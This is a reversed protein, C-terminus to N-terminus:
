KTGSTDHKTYDAPYGMLWEVWHINPGTGNSKSEWKVANQLDQAVRPTVTKAFSVNTRPTPWLSKKIRGGILLQLDPKVFPPTKVRFMSYAKQPHSQIFTAILSVACNICKPVVSRGLLKWRRWFETDQKGTRCPEKPLNSNHTWVSMLKKINAMNRFCVCFLRLRNHPLGVAYAPLIVYASMYGWRGIVTRMCDNNAGKAVSPVNELLVIRPKTARVIRSLEYILSSDVNNFNERKGAVSFGTCPWGACILDCHLNDDLGRVDPFIPAKPLMGVKINKRIVAQAAPEIECYLVPLSINHLAKTFGGIGTFIDAHTWM